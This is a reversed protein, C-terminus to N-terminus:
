FALWRLRNIKILGVAKGAPAEALNTPPVPAKGGPAPPLDQICDNLILTAANLANLQTRKISFVSVCSMSIEANKVNINM